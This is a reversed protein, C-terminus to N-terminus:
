AGHAKFTRKNPIKPATNLEERSLIKYSQSRPMNLFLKEMVADNSVLKRTEMNIFGFNLYYFTQLEGNNSYIHQAFRHVKKSESEGLLLVDITIQDEALIEKIYYNHESIVTPALKNNSLYDQTIGFHHFLSIRVNNYFRFYAVNAMHRNPDLESWGVEFTRSFTELRSGNKTM